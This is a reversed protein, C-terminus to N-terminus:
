ISSSNLILLDTEIQQIELKLRDIYEQRNKKGQDSLIINKDSLIVDLREKRYNLSETLIIISITMKNEM